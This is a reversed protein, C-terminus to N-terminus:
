SRISHTIQLAATTGDEIQVIDKMASPNMGVLAAQLEASTLFTYKEAM